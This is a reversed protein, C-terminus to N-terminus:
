LFKAILSFLTIKTIYFYFYREIAGIALTSIYLFIAFFWGYLLIVKTIIAFTLKDSVMSQCVFTPM